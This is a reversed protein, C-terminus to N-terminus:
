IRFIDPTHISESASVGGPTGSNCSYLHQGDATILFFAPARAELLFEPKSLAGTDTDFHALSFGANPGTSHSGFYIFTDAASLTVASATIVAFALLPISPKM